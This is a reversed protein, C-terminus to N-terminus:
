RITVTAETVSSQFEGEMFKPVYRRQLMSDTIAPLLAENGSFALVDANTVRGEPNIQLEFRAQAFQEEGSVDITLEPQFAPLRERVKFWPQIRALAKLLETAADTQKNIEYNEIMAMYAEVAKDNSAFGAEAYGEIVKKFFRNSNDYDATMKLAQGLWFATLIVRADTTALQKAYRQHAEQLYRIAQDQEIGKEYLFKASEFRIDAGLQPLEQQHLDAISVARDFQKLAKYRGDRVAKTRTQRDGGFRRVRDRFERQGDLLPSKHWLHAIGLSMLPDILSLSTDGNNQTEYDIYDNLLEIARAADYDPNTDRETVYLQAFNLKLIKTTAHNEGNNQESLQYAKEIKVLAEVTEGYQLHDQYEKFLSVVTDARLSSAPWQLALILILSFIFKFLASSINM